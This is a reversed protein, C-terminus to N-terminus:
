GPQTAPGHAPTAATARGPGDALRAILDAIQGAACPRGLRAAAALVLIPWPAARHAM